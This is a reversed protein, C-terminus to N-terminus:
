SRLYKARLEDVTVSDGQEIARESRRIERMTAPNSLIDLTEELSELDHPSMIVAAPRGHRTLVIRDHHQEVGDVIQSLRKKIEALPLTLDSM